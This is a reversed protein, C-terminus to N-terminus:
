VNKEVEWVADDVFLLTARRRIKGIQRIFFIKCLFPQLWKEWHWIFWVHLLSKNEAWSALLFAVGATWASLATGGLAVIANTFRANTFQNKCKSPNNMANFHFLTIFLGSISQASLYMSYVWKKSSSGGKYSCQPESTSFFYSWKYSCRWGWFLPVYLYEYKIQKLFNHFHYEKILDLNVVIVRINYHKYNM